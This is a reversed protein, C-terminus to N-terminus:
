EAQLLRQVIGEAELLEARSSAELEIERKDALKVRIKIPKDGIRDLLFDFLNKINKISVEAELLGWLFSGLSRSGEPPAPDIVRKAEVGEIDRIQQFLLQTWREQKDEASDSERFDLLLRCKPDALM